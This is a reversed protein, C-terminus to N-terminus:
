NVISTARATPIGAIAFHATVTSGQPAGGAPDGEDYSRAGLDYRITGHAPVVQPSQPCSLAGGGGQLASGVATSNDIDLAYDPCPSMVIPVATTNQLQVVASGLTHGDTTAPLTLTAHLGAWEPPPTLTADTPGGPVGPVLVATSHGQCPPAPGTLPVVIQNSSGSAPQSPDADLAIVVSAAKAGCWSGRWTFGWGVSGLALPVDTRQNLAPNVTTVTADVPIALENGGGDLLETSWTSIHLSCHAGVLEVVGAVGSAIPRTEAIATVDAPVCPAQVPAPGPGAAFDLVPAAVRFASDPITSTTASTTPSSPPSTPPSSSAPASVGSLRDATAGSRRAESACAALAVLVALLAVLKTKVVSLRRAASVPEM